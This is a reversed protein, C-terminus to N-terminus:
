AWPEHSSEQPSFIHQGDTQINNFMKSKKKLIVIYAFKGCINRRHDLLLGLTMTKSKVLRHTWGM